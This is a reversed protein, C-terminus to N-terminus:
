PGVELEFAGVDCAPGQPRAVGRQDEDVDCDVAPIHDVAVSGPMLAHTMTPGGNDQLPGLNLQQETVTVWDTQQDFGCTDGPSEINYGSSIIDPSGQPLGERWGICDDDIVSNSIMLVATNLEDTSNVISAGSESTNGSVTSGVITSTAGGSNLLAGCTEGHNGSVTSNTLSLLSENFIAGYRGGSNESVTSNTLTLTGDDNFIANVGFAGASNGSVTGDTIALVGENWIGGFGVQGGANESVASNTLMLSAFRGNWIGASGTEGASNRSVTCSTMKLTGENAIGGGSGELSGPTFGGSVTIRRLEAEVDAPIAFVVHDDNGDVTLDDRGDLIVDHDIVIEATTTVVTPGDCAFGHPGGGEAIADRIGQETCPFISAIPECQGSQCYGADCFAGDDIPTNTCSGDAPDCEDSTCENADDCEIGECLGSTKGCGMTGLALVCIFGFLCRM